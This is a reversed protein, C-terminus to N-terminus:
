RLVARRVEERGGLQNMICEFSVSPYLQSCLLEMLAMVTAGNRSNLNVDRLFFGREKVVPNRTVAEGFHM